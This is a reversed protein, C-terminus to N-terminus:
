LKEGRINRIHEGTSMDGTFDPDSGIFEDISPLKQPPVCFVHCRRNYGGDYYEQRDLIPHDCVACHHLSRCIRKPYEYFEKKRKM